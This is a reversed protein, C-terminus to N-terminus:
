KAQDNVVFNHTIIETNLLTDQEGLTALAAGIALVQAEDPKAVTNKLQRVKKGGKYHEGGIYYNIETANWNLAM